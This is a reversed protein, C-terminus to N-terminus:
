CVCNCSNRVCSRLLLLLLLLLLVYRKNYYPSNMMNCKCQGSTVNCWGNPESCNNLCQKHQCIDGFYGPNCMCRSVPYEISCWGNFSCNHKCDKISCDEGLYPPACYSTGYGDCIGNSEGKDEAPEFSCPHKHADQIYPEGDEHTYGAHCAHTCEQEHTDPDYHCFTGPCSTNSCDLGYYGVDCICFGYECDGHLSCNNICHFLNYYWMDDRVLTPFSIGLNKPVENFNVMGGYMFVESTDPFFVAKHQARGLPKVYQLTQPMDTRGDVRDRCGDWGPRRRRPLDITISHDSRGWEGDLIKGRTPEAKVSTCKEMLTANYTENFQYVFPRAYQMPGTAAFPFLPSGVEARSTFQNLKPADEDESFGKEMIPYAPYSVKVDEYPPQDYPGYESDPWYFRQQRYPLEDFPYLTDRELHKPYLLLHCGSSDSSDSTNGIVYTINMDDWDDTCSEPYFPYTFATKQLWKGTEIYFYWTDDFYTNDAFGGHVFIVDPGTLLMIHDARPEPAVLADSLAVFCVICLLVIMLLLVRHYLM